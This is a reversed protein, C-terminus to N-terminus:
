KSAFLRSVAAMVFLGAGFGQFGKFMEDLGYFTQGTLHFYLCVGIVAFLPLARLMYTTGTSRFVYFMMYLSIIAGTAGAILVSNIENMPYQLGAFLAAAGAWILGLVTNSNM